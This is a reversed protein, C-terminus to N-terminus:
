PRPAMPLIIQDGRVRQGSVTTVPLRSGDSLRYLGVAVTLGAAAPTDAPLPITRRDVVVQGPAWNSTPYWGNVPPGDEQAAQSHSADLVHAFVTYDEAVAADTQWFLTLDVLPADPSGTLM